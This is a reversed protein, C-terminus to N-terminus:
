EHGPCIKSLPIKQLPELHGRAGITQLLVEMQPQIQRYNETLWQKTVVPEKLYRDIVSAFLFDGAGNPDKELIIEEPHCEVQQNGFYYRVGKKGETISLLNTHLIRCLDASQCNLKHLLIKECDQNMNIIAFPYQFQELIEEKRLYLYSKSFSLDFFVRPQVKELKQQISTSWQDLVLVKDASLHSICDNWNVQSRPYWHKENCWPCIKSTQMSGKTLFIFFARESSVKEVWQCDIEWRELSQLAVSGLLSDGVAGLVTCSHGFSALNVLINAFSKGGNVGQYEGELFYLDTVLDGM